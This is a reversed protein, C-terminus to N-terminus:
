FRTSMEKLRGKSAFKLNSELESHDMKKKKKIVMLPDKSHSSSKDENEEAKRKLLELARQQIMKREDEQAQKM